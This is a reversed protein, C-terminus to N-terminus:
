HGHGQRIPRASSGVGPQLLPLIEVVVGDLVVFWETCPKSINALDLFSDRFKRDVNAIDFKVDLAAVGRCVGRGCHGRCDLPVPLVLLLAQSKPNGLRFRGARGKCSLFCCKSVLVFGRCWRLRLCALFRFLFSAPFALLGVFFREGAECGVNSGCDRGGPGQRGVGCVRRLPGFEM